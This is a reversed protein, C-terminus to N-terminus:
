DRGGCLRGEVLRAGVGHVSCAVVRGGVADQVGVGLELAVAHYGGGKGKGGADLGLGTWDLEGVLGKRGWVKVMPRPLSITQWAIAYRASRML